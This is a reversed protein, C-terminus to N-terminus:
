GARVFSTSNVTRGRPPDLAIQVLAGGADVITARKAAPIEVALSKAARSAPLRGSRSAVIVDSAAAATGARPASSSSGGLRGRGGRPPLFIRIRYECGRPCRVTARARAADRDLKPRSPTLPALLDDAPPDMYARYLRITGTLATACSRLNPEVVEGPCRVLSRSAGSIPVVIEADGLKERPIEIRTRLHTVAVDRPGFMRGGIGLLRGGNAGCRLDFTAMSFPVFAAVTRGARPDYVHLPTLTGAAELRGTPASCRYDEPPNEWRNVYHSKADVQELIERTALKQPLLAGDLFRLDDFWGQLVFKVTTDRTVTGGETAEATQYVVGVGYWATYVYRVEAQAAPATAALALATAGAAVLARASSFM